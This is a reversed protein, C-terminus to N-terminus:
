PLHHRHHERCRITEGTRKTIVSIVAMRKPTLTVAGLVYERVPIPEGEAVWAMAVQASTRRPMKKSKAQGLPSVLGRDMVAAIASYPEISQMFQGWSETAIEGAWGAVSTTGVTQDAKTIIAKTREDRPWRSAAIKGVSAGGKQHFLAALMAREYASPKPMYNPLSILATKM